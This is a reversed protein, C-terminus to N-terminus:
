RKTTSWEVLPNYKFFEMVILYVFYLFPFIFVLNNFYTITLMPDTDIAAGKCMLYTFIFGGLVNGPLMYPLKNRIFGLTLGILFSFFISGSYGYYILGFINHRANPGQLIDSPHHINKLTIGIAQPMEDWSQLRLLGLTDDFLATFWHDSPIRLYVNNPYAYWYVDGSHVFRLGLALIPNLGTSTPDDVVSRSQIYIIFTVVILSLVLIGKINRKLLRLYSVYDQGKIIAFIIYCWFINFVILFSSKSGSLLFTCFIMMLIFYKPLETLRFKDLKIISFFLYISIVSSVDTIRGLIGAGGGSAFTELRSEMFLPIGKLLYILCQFFLYIFSYYYFAVLRANINRKRLELTPVPSKLSLIKLNFTYLGLIFALQTFVYNSFVYLTINQTFYLLFVDALCFVSSLTPLFYPDLVSRVQKRFIFYHLLFSGVLIGFFLNVNNLAVSYFEYNNM